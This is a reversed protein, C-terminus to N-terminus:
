AERAHQLEIEVNEMNKWHQAFARNAFGNSSGGDVVLDTGTVYASADSALYLVHAAIESMRGLRGLPNGQSVKAALDEPWGGGFSTEFGGIQLCNVRVRPAWEAAMARSMQQLAAKSPRYMCNGASPSAIVGSTVNIISGRGSAMLHPGCAKALFFPAFVNVEFHRRAVDPTMDEIFKLSTYGANNVLVDIAGFRDVAAQAIVPATKIDGVDAKVGVAEGGAAAIAAVTEDLDAQTRGAAVIRAGAKALGLSMARGLGRGGGTIIVVRGAVDYAARPDQDSTM